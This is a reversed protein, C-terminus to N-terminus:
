PKEAPQLVLRFRRCPCLGDGQLHGIAIAVKTECRGRPVENATHRAEGHGCECRDEEEYMVSMAEVWMSPM